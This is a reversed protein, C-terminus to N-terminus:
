SDFHVLYLISMLTYMYIGFCRELFWKPFYLINQHEKAKFSIALPGSTKLVMLYFLKLADRRSLKCYVCTWIIKGMFTERTFLIWITYVIGWVDRTYWWFEFMNYCPGYNSYQCSRHNWLMIIFSKLLRLTWLRCLLEWRILTWAGEGWFVGLLKM